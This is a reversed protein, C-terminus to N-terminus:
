GRRQGLRYAGVVLTFLGFGLVSLVLATPFKWDEPGARGGPAIIQEGIAPGRLVITPKVFGLIPNPPGEQQAVLDKVRLTVPPGLRSQITITEVSAALAQTVFSGVGAM